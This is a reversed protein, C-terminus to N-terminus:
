LVKQLAKKARLRSVFRTWLGPSFSGIRVATESRLLADVFAGASEPDGAWGDAGWRGIALEPGARHPALEYVGVRPKPGSDTLILRLTRQVHEPDGGGYVLVVEPVVRRVSKLLDAGSELCHAEHNAALGVLAALRSRAHPDVVFVRAVFVAYGTM